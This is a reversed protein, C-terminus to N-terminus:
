PKAPLATTRAQQIQERLPQLQPDDPYRKLLDEWLAAADKPRGAQMLAIGKNFLAKKHGPQTKLALDFAAIAEEPKGSNVLCAGMDVRVDANQPELALAEAYWRAAGEWQEHDMLLNGLEVRAQTNKPDRRALSELAKVENPDLAAPAGPMGPAGVGASAGAPGASVFSPVAAAPRSGGASAVMYGLVFGFIVGAVGYVM